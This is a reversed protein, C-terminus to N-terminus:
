KEISSRALMKCATRTHRAEQQICSGLRLYCPLEKNEIRRKVFHYILLAERATQPINAPGVKTTPGTM